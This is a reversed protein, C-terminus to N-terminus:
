VAGHREPMQWHVRQRPCCPQCTNHNKHLTTASSPGTPSHGFAFLMLWGNKERATKEDINNFNDM